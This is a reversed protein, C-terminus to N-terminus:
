TFTLSRMTDSLKQTTKFYQRVRKKGDKLLFIKKPVIKWEVKRATPLRKIFDGM